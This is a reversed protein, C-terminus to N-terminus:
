LLPNIIKRVRQLALSAREGALVLNEIQACRLRLLDDVFYLFQGEKLRKKDLCVEVQDLDRLLVLAKTRFECLAALAETTAMVGCKQHIPVVEQASVQSSWSPLAPLRTTPPSDSLDMCCNCVHLVRLLALASGEGARVINEIQACRLRALTDVFYLREEDMEEEDLMKEDLRDKETYGEVKARFEFLAALADNVASEPELEPETIETINCKKHINHM